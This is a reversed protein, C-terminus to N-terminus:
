PNGGGGTAGDGAQLRRLQEIARSGLGAIRGALELDGALGGALQVALGAGAEVASGVSALLGRLRDREAKSARLQGALSDGRATAGALAERTSQLSQLIGDLDRKVDSALQEAREARELDAASGAVLPSYLLVYGLAAVLLAGLIAGILLVLARSVVGEGHLIRRYLCEVDGHRYAGSVM